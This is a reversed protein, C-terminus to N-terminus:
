NEEKAKRAFKLIEHKFSGYDNDTKARHIKGNCLQVYIYVKMM